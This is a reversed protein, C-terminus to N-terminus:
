MFFSGYFLLNENEPSPMSNLIQKNGAQRLQMGIRYLEGRFDITPWMQDSLTSEIEKERLVCMIFFRSPCDLSTLAFLIFCCSSCIFELARLHVHTFFLSCVNFCHMHINLLLIFLSLSLSVIAFFCQRIQRRQLRQHNFMRSRVSSLSAFMCVFVCYFIRCVSLCNMQHNKNMLMSKQHQQQQKQKMHM